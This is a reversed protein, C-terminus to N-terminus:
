VTKPKEFKKLWTAIFRMINQKINLRPKEIRIDLAKLVPTIHCAIGEGKANSGWLLGIAKNAENLIISGSDGARSFIDGPQAPAILIQNPAEFSKRNIYAHDPYCIDTIIGHTLGSGAGIKIVKEGINPIDTGDMDLVSSAFRHSTQTGSELQGLACDIFYRGGKYMIIGIEMQITKGILHCQYTGDPQYDILWIPEGILAKQGSLVHANTLLYWINEDRKRVLCGLTGPVGKSNAILEGPHVKIGKTQHTNRRAIVDTQMGYLESPIRDEPLLLQEPIKQSVYIRWSMEQTLKGNREKLGFGLGSMNPLHELRKAVKQYQKGSPIMM